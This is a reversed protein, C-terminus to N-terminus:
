RPDFRPVAGFRVGAYQTALVTLLIVAAQTARVELDLRLVGFVLLGGLCAIQYLRPDRLEAVLTRALRDRGTGRPVGPTAVTDVPRPAPYRLAEAVLPTTPM